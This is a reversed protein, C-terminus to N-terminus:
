GLWVLGAPHRYTVAPAQDRELSKSLLELSAAEAKARTEYGSGNNARSNFNCHGMTIFWRGGQPDQAAVHPCNLGRCGSGKACPTILHDYSM